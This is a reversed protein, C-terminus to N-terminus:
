EHLPDGVTNRSFQAAVIANYVDLYDKTMAAIDHALAFKRAAERL